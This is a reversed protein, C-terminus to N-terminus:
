KLWSGFAQMLQWIVCPLFAAMMGGRDTDVTVHRLAKDRFEYGLGIVAVPM